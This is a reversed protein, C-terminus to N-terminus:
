ASPNTWMMRCLMRQVPVGEVEGEFVPTSWSFRIDRAGVSELAGSIFGENPWVYFGLSSGFAPRAESSSTVVRFKKNETVVGWIM